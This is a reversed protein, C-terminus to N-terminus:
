KGNLFGGDGIGVHTIGDYTLTVDSSESSCSTSVSTYRGSTALLGATEFEIIIFAPIIYSKKM